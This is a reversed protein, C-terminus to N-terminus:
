GHQNSDLLTKEKMDERLKAMLKKLCFRKQKRVEEYGAVRRITVVSNIFREVDSALQDADADPWKHGSVQARHPCASRKQGVHSCELLRMSSSDTYLAYWSKEHKVKSSINLVQAPDSLYM